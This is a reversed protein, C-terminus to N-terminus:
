KILYQFSKKRVLDCSYVKTENPKPFPFAFDTSQAKFVSGLWAPHCFRYTYFM